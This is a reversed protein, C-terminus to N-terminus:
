KEGFIKNIKKLGVTGLIIRLEGKGFGRQLFILSFYIIIGIVISVVIGVIDIPNFIWICFTMIISALLSKVIFWLNLNFTIYKRSAYGVIGALMIYALLTTIAAAIIGYNPVFIINLIINSVCSVVFAIVFIKTRKFIWLSVGFIQEIGWFVIGVAILPIIYQGESVFISTTLLSLLPKALIFLGFASPITIMLLYKWSYSLYIKVKNVNGKDYLDYVTPGLIFVLFTSFMLPILGIGYAASYIGVKEAGLFFGVVYRDSSEIVFQSLSIPLLPLGFLLYPKLLSFDPRTFGAYSIIRFLMIGLSVVAAVILALVAGTVGFGSLIFVIILGIELFTKFIVVASYSKILGFVRFSCLVITNLANLIIYISTLKIPYSASIDKLLNIAIFDSFFFLFFSAVISSFLVFIVGTIVGQFIQEKQKSALFRLSANDLGLLLLPSSLGVTVLIFAWVGYDSAGLTKTLIPLLILGKLSVITQAVGVLGIRKIFLTYGDSMQELVM